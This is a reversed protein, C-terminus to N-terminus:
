THRESSATVQLFRPREMRVVWIAAALFYANIFLMYLRSGSMVHTLAAAGMLLIVGLAGYSQTSRNLCSFGILLEVVGVMPVLARPLGLEEFFVYQPSLGLLKTVGLGLFAAGMGMCFFRVRRPVSSDHAM